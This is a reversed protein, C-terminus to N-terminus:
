TAGQKWPPPGWIDDPVGIGDQRMVAVLRGLRWNCTRAEEESASIRQDQRYVIRYLFALASLVVGLGIGQFVVDPM